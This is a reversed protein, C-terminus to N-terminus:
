EINESKLVVIEVSKNNPSWVWLPFGQAVSIDNNLIQAYKTLDTPKNVECCFRLFEGRIQQVYVSSSGDSIQTPEQTILFKETSM